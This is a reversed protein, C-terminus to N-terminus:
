ADLQALEADSMELNSYVNQVDDLDDLTSILRVLSQAAEGEVPVNTKPIWVFKASAPEGFRAELAKTVDALANVACIVAHQEEEAQCDDAGAEIAAELLADESAVTLPYRVEGVRDWLFTVTNTVGLN